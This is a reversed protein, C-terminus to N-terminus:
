ITSHGSIILQSKDRNRRDRNKRNKRKRISTNGRGSDITRVSNSTNGENSMKEVSSIDTSSDDIHPVVVTSGPAIDQTVVTGTTMNSAIASDTGTVTDLNKIINPEAETGTANVTVKSDHKSDHKRGTTGFFRKKIMGTMERFWVINLVIMVISLCFAMIFVGDDYRDMFSLVIYYFTYYPVTFRCFIFLIVFVIDIVNSIKGKIDLDRFISRVCLLVTSVEMIHMAGSLNLYRNTVLVTIQTLLGVCHHLTYQLTKKTYPELCIVFFLSVVFYCVSFFITNWLLSYEPEPLIGLPDSIYYPLLYCAVVATIVSHILGIINHIFTFFAGREMKIGILKHQSKYKIINVVYYM